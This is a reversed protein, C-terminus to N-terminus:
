NPILWIKWTKIVWFINMLMVISVLVIGVINSICIILRIKYHATNAKTYIDWFKDRIHEKQKLDQQKRDEKTVDEIKSKGFDYKYYDYAIGINKSYEELNKEYKLDGLFGALSLHDKLIKPYWMLVFFNSISFFLASLFFVRWSFPLGFVINIPQGFILFAHKEGIAEFIKATIPVIFVWINMSHVFKSKQFTILISWTIKQLPM